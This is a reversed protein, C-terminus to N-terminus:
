ETDEEGLRGSPGGRAGSRTVESPGDGSAQSEIESQAESIAFELNGEFSVCAALPPRESHALWIQGRRVGPLSLRIALPGSPLLRLRAAELAGGCLHLTSGVVRPRDDAPTVRLWACGHGPVGKVRLEGDRAALFRQGLIDWVRFPPEVGLRELDIRLERERGSFNIELVLVSGDPFRTWLGGGRSSRLTHAARGSAPSLRRFLEIWEPELSSPLDGLSPPGGSAASLAALTVREWASLESDEDALTLPGIEQLWLRQQLPARVLASRIAVEAAGGPDVGRAGLRPSWRPGWQPGCRVQDLLGISPGLPVRCGLLKGHQAVDDSGRLARLAERYAEAAGMETRARAGPQLGADLHSLAMQDFGLGRLTDGLKRLWDVVGPHSADLIWATEEGRPLPGRFSVPTGDVDRLVWGPEQHALMSDPSVLFPALCIRPTFGADRIEQAAAGLGRPLSEGATHWDGLSPAYEAGLEFVGSSIGNAHARALAEGLGREDLPAQPALSGQLERGPVPARMERGAWAAWVGLGDLAPSDLGLWLRECTLRSRPLLQLAETFCSATLELLRSSEARALVFSLFREHSVFGAVLGEHDKARLATVFDSVHLGWATPPTFPGREDPRARSFPQIWPLAGLKRWRAPADSHFGMELIETSGPPHDTQLASHTRDRSWWLPDMSDVRVPEFGRNSLELGILVGPWEAGLDLDLRAWLRSSLRAEVHVRTALGSRTRITGHGSLVPEHALLAGKQTIVRPRFGSIRTEGSQSRLEMELTALHVSVRIERNALHITDQERRIEVTM